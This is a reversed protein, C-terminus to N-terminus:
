VPKGRKEAAAQRAQFDQASKVLAYLGYGPGAGGDGLETLFAAYDAPLAVGFEQEFAALDAQALVPALQYRHTSAGFVQLHVDLRRLADLKDHIRTLQTM